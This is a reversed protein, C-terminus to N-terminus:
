ATLTYVIPNDKFLLKVNGEGSINVCKANGWKVVNNCVEFDFLLQIDCVIHSTAATDFIYMVPRAGLMTSM